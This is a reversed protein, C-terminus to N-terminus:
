LLFSFACHCTEKHLCFVPYCVKCVSAKIDVKLIQSTIHDRVRSRVAMAMRVNTYSEAM